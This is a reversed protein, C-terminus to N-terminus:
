QTMKRNPELLQALDTVLLVGVVDEGARIVYQAGPHEQVAQVVREGGLGAPLVPVAEINRAVEDVSLWPRRPAPVARVAVPDVLAILRGASDAVALVAGPAGAVAARRQAEALPTGGPVPFLPRALRALDILPFRRSIRALRISQGAGQWVVAAVLLALLLGLPRLQDAMMLLAGVAAISVSVVRGVLGAAETARHRDRGYAWLVARLARGGDLPLGPLVNVGAIFLNVMALQFTLQGLLSRDPLALAALAASVGLGLSVAPGALAVWLDTRPDRADRDLETYGGLLDLTIGRVGIGHRRATLAHGLEHLLVSGLLCVVFGCGVAYGVLQALGSRGRVFEGYLVAAVTSFLLVSPSLLVPIGFIRGIALLHRRLTPRPRRADDAVPDISRFRRIRVCDPPSPYRDPRVPTKVKRCSPPSPM